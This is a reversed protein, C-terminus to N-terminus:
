LCFLGYLFQGRKEKGPELEDCNKVKLKRNKYSSLCLIEKELVTHLIKWNRNWKYELKYKQEVFYM